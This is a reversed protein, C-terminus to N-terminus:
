VENEKQKAKYIQEITRSFFKNFGEMIASHDENAKTHHKTVELQMRAHEKKNDNRFKAEEALADKFDDNIRKTYERWDEDNLDREEPDPGKLLETLWTVREPDRPDYDPDHVFNRRADLMADIRARRTAVPLSRNITARMRSTDAEFLDHYRTSRCIQIHARWLDNVYGDVATHKEDPRVELDEDWIFEGWDDLINLGARAANHDAGNMLRERYLEIEARLNTSFIDPIPAEVKGPDFYFELIKIKMHRMFFVIAFQFAIQDDTGEFRFEEDEELTALFLVRDVNTMGHNLSSGSGSAVAKKQQVFQERGVSLM